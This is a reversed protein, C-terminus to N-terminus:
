GTLIDILDIKGRRLGREIAPTAKLICHSKGDLHEERLPGLPKQKQVKCHDEQDGLAEEMGCSPLLVSFVPSM